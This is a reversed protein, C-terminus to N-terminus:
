HELRKLHWAGKLLTPKEDVYTKLVIESLQSFMVGLTICWKIAFEREFVKLGNKIFKGAYPGIAVEFSRLMTDSMVYFTPL